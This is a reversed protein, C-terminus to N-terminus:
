DRYLVVFEVRRNTSRGEETDNSTIPSIDGLGISELRNKNIGNIAIFAKINYARLESLQKNKLRDGKNDTHGTILIETKYYKKLLSCFKILPDQYNSSPIDNYKDYVINNPFLIKISDEILKVDAELLGNKMDNFTKQMYESKSLPSGVRKPIPPPPTSAKPQEYPIHTPKYSYCSSILVILLFFFSTQIKKLM